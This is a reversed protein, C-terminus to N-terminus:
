RRRSTRRHCDATFRCTRHLRRYDLVNLSVQTTEIKAISRITKINLIAPRDSKRSHPLACSPCLNIPGLTPAGFFQVNPQHTFMGATLPIAESRECHCTKRQKFGFLANTLLLRKQRGDPANQSTSAPGPTANKQTCPRRSLCSAGNQRRITGGCGTPAEVLRGTLML